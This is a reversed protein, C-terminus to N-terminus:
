PRCSGLLAGGAALVYTGARRRSTLEGEHVLDSVWGTALGLLASSIAAMDAEKAETTAAIRGGGTRPTFPTPRLGISWLGWRRLPRGSARFHVAGRM